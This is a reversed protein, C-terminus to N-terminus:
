YKIMRIFRELLSIVNDLSPEKNLLPPIGDRKMTMTIAALKISLMDNDGTFPLSGLTALNLHSNCSFEDDLGNLYWGIPFTGSAFAEPIKETIYGPYLTNEPALNFNYDSLIDRKSLNIKIGGGGYVDCSMINKIQRYFIDRPSTMHSNILACKRQHDTFASAPIGTTLEDIAIPKGLRYFARPHRPVASDAWDISQYWHPM